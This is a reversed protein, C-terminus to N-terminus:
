VDRRSIAWVAGGVVALVWVVLVAAGAGSSLVDTGARDITTFAAASSSPLYKLAPDWSAPLLAGALQPLVLLGAILVGISGAVSRLLIGLGMGLLGAATLYGAMGVVQRLVGPDGLAATHNGGSHLVSMGLFFAGFVGVLTSVLLVATLVVAKSLVVQWRRPVAAVTSAIMRSGYERAGLICGLVGVVLVGLNAGTLVIAVPGMEAFRGARGTDGMRNNSMAAALASFGILLAVLLAQGVWSARLTRFKIWEFRIVRGFSQRYHRVLRPEPLVATPSPITTTM